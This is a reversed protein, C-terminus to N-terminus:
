LLCGPEYVRGQSREQGHDMAALGRGGLYPRAWAGAPDIM